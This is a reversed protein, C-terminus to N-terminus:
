WRNFDEQTAIRVDEKEDDTLRENNYEIVFDLIMGVTMYEFEAM